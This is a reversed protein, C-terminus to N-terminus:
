DGAVFPATESPSVTRNGGHFGNELNRYLRKAPQGDCPETTLEWESARGEGAGVKMTFAGPVPLCPVGRGPTGPLCPGGQTGRGPSGHPGRAGLVLDPRQEHRQPADMDRDVPLTRPLFPLAM